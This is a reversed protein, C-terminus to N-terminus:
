KKAPKTDMLGISKTEAYGEITWVAIGSENTQRNYYASAYKGGDIERPKFFTYGNNLNFVSLTDAVGMENYRAVSIMKDPPSNKKTPAPALEDRLFFLQANYVMPENHGANYMTNPVVQYEYSGKEDISLYVIKNANMRQGMKRFEKTLKNQVPDNSLSERGQTYPGWQSLQGLLSNLTNANSRSNVGPKGPTNAAGPAAPVYYASKGQAGQSSSNEEPLQDNKVGKKSKKNPKLPEDKDIDKELQLQYHPLDVLWASVFLRGDKEFIEKLSINDSADDQKRGFRLNARLAEPLAAPFPHFKSAIMQKREYPLKLVAVGKKAKYQGDYYFGQLQLSRTVTDDALTLEHFKTKEIAFSETLLTDRNLPITHLTVTSSLHYNGLKDYVAMQINGSIDVMLPSLNYLKNDYNLPYLGNKLEKWTSDLLVARIYDNNQPDTYLSYYLFYRGRIDTALEAPSSNVRSFYYKSSNFWQENGKEDLRVVSVSLTDRVQNKWTINVADGSIHFRIRPSSIYEPTKNVLEFSSDFTYIASPWGSLEDYVMFHSGVKGILVPQIFRLDKAAFLQMGAKQAALSGM